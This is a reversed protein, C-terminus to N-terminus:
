SSYKAWCLATPFVKQSTMRTTFSGRSGLEKGLLYQLSFFIILLLVYRSHGCSTLWCVKKQVCSLPTRPLGVIVRLLVRLVGDSRLTETITAGASPSALGLTASVLTSGFLPLMLHFLVSSDFMLCIGATVNQYVLHHQLQRSPAPSILNPPAPSILHLHSSGM